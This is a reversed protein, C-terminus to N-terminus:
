ICIKSVFNTFDIFEDSFSSKIKLNNILDTLNDIDNM